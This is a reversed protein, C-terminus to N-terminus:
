HWLSSWSIDHQCLWRSQTWNIHFCNYCSLLPFKGWCLNHIFGAYDLTDFLCHYNRHPRTTFRKFGINGHTFHSQLNEHHICIDSLIGISLSIRLLVAWFHLMDFHIWVYVTGNLCVCFQLPLRLILQSFTNIIKCHNWVILDIIASNATLVICVQFTYTHRVQNISFKM